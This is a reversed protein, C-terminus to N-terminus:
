IENLRAPFVNGIPTHTPLLDGRQVFALEVNVAIQLQETIQRTPLSRAHQIEAVVDVGIQGISGHLVAPSRGGNNRFDFILYTKYLPTFVM